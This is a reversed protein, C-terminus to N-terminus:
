GPYKPDSLDNIKDTKDWKDKFKNKMKKAIIRKIREESPASSPHRHDIGLKTKNSVNVM